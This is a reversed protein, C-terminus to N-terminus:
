SMTVQQGNVPLGTILIRCAPNTIGELYENEEEHMRFVPEEDRQFGNEGRKIERQFGNKEKKKVDFQILLIMGWRMLIVFGNKYGTKLM